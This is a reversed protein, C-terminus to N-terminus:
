MLIYLLAFILFFDSKEAVLLIIIPFILMFDNNTREDQTPYRCNRQPLILQLLNENM